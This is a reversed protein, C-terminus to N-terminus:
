SMTVLTSVTVSVVRKDAALDIELGSSHMMGLFFAPMADVCAHGASWLIHLLEDSHKLLGQGAWCYLCLESISM